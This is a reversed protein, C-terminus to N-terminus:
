YSAKTYCLVLSGEQFKSLMPSKNLSDDKLFHMSVHFDPFNMVASPIDFGQNGDPPYEDISISQTRWSLQLESLTTSQSKAM